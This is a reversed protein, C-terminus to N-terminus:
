NIVIPEFIKRIFLRKAIILQKILKTHVLLPTPLQSKPTPVESNPSRLTRLLTSRLTPVAWWSFNECTQLNFELIFGLVSLDERGVGLEWGGVRRGKGIQGIKLSSFSM